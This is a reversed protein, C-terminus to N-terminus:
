SGKGQRKELFATMRARKDESDFLVAQALSELASSMDVEHRQANLVIKALRIAAAGQGAITEAWALAETLVAEDDVVRNVLGMALAEDAEVWRGTFILEKARGLGVLRPLRHTGGAGPLIGLGVEPQGLRASRGAVRLDCAIALECGGGLAFGRIAAIVPVPLEEVRRFLTGNISELAEPSRRERLEAIDAGGAFHDGAGTIVVARLDRDRILDDLVRHLAEILELNLANRKEPRNLTLILVADRREQLLVSNV